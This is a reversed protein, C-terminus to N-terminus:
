TESQSVVTGRLRDTLSQVAEQMHDCNTNSTGSGEKKLCDKVVPCHLVSDRDPTYSFGNPTPTLSAGQGCKTCIARPRDGGVRQGDGTM